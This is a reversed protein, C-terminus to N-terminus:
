IFRAMRYDEWAVFGLARYARLAPANDKRVTLIVRTATRLLDRCAASVVARALGRGRLDKETYVAGIQCLADLRAEVAVMSVVQGEHEVVWAGEEIYRRAVDLCWPRSVRQVPVGFYDVEFTHRLKAIAACDRPTARRPRADEVPRLSAADVYCLHDREDYGLAFGLPELRELLPNVVREVGMIWRLRRQRADEVLADLISEDDEKSLAAYHPFWRGYRYFGQVAVLRPPAEKGGHYRYGILTLADFAPRSRERQRRHDAFPRSQGAADRPTWVHPDALMIVTEHAHALMYDRIESLAGHGVRELLVAEWVGRKKAIPFPDRPDLVRAIRHAPEVHRLRRSRLAAGGGRPDSLGAIRQSTAM